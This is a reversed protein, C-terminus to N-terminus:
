DSATERKEDTGGGVPRPPRCRGAAPKKGTLVMRLHGDSCHDVRYEQGAKENEHQRGRRNRSCSFRPMAANTAHCPATREVDKM